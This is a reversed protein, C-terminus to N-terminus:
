QVEINQNVDTWTTVEPYILIENGGFTITYIYHKGIEWKKGDTGHELSLTVSHSIYEPHEKSSAPTKLDYEIVLAAEYNNKDTFSCSQPIILVGNHTNEPIADDDTDYTNQVLHGTTNSYVTIGETPAVTPPTWFTETTSATFNATTEIGKLVVSKITWYEPTTDEKLYFKFTLWSLAHKFTVSIGLNETPNHNYSKETVDFWMLDNTAAVDTSQIYNTVTFTRSSLTYDFDPADQGEVKASAPSYGAFVLSGKTPWYYPTQGGWSNDKHVFTGEDIYDTTPTFDVLDTDANKDAWWAWVNFSETTPYEAGGVAAKTAKQTVPQLSIEGPQEYQVTSKTCAAMAGIALAAIVLRKM